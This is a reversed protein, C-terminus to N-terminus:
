RPLKFNHLWPFQINLFFRTRQQAFKSNITSHNDLWHSFGPSCRVQKTACCRLVESFRSDIACHVNEFCNEVFSLQLASTKNTFNNPGTIGAQTYYIGLKRSIRRGVLVSRRFLQYPLIYKQLLKRYNNKKEFQACWTTLVTKDEAGFPQCIRTIWILYNSVM